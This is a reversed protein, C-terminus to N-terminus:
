LTPTLIGGRSPSGRSCSLSVLPSPSLLRLNAPPLIPPPVTLPWLAPFCIRGRTQLAYKTFPNAKTAELDQQLENSIHSLCKFGRIQCLARGCSAMIPNSPNLQDPHKERLNPSRSSHM